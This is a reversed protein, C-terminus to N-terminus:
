SPQSSWVLVKVERHMLSNCRLLVTCLYPIGACKIATKKIPNLPRPQIKFYVATSDSEYSEFTLSAESNSLSQITSIRLAATLWALIETVQIQCELPGYVDIVTKETNVKIEVEVSTSGTIPLQTIM